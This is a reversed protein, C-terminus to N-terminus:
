PNPDGQGFVEVDFIAAIYDVGGIVIPDVEFRAVRADDYGTATHNEIARKVSEGDEGSMFGALRKRATRDTVRGTIVVIPMVLSDMGRGYTGDFTGSEPYAIIAAPPSITDPPFDYVRGAMGDISRLGDALDAVVDELRM